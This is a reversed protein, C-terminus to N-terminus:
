RLFRIKLESVGGSGKDRLISRRTVPSRANSRSNSSTASKESFALGWHNVNGTCYGKFLHILAAQWHRLRIFLISLRSPSYQYHLFDSVSQIVKPREAHCLLTLIRRDFTLTVASDLLNLLVSITTDDVCNKPAIISKVACSQLTFNVWSVEDTHNGYNNKFPTVADPM